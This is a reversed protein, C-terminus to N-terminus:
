VQRWRTVITVVTQLALAPAVYELAVIGGYPPRNITVTSSAEAHRGRHTARLTFTYTAGPQLQNESVVLNPGSTGTSSAATLLDVDSPVVSWALQMPEEQQGADSPLAASGLLALKAAPNPREPGQRTISVAPLTGPIVKVSVDSSISEGDPKSILVFFTYNGAALAPPEILWACSSRAPVALPCTPSMADALKCSWNFAILDGCPGVSSGVGGSCTARPEDPDRSACANLALGDETGVVRDGGAIGGQLPEDRLGVRTEATSCLSLNAETCGTVRLTYTPKPPPASPETALLERMTTRGPPPPQLTSGRLLLARTSKSVTDLEIPVFSANGAGVAQSWDYRM